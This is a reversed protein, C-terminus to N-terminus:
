GELLELLRLYFERLLQCVEGGLGLVDVVQVLQANEFM